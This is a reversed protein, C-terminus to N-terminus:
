AYPWKERNKTWSNISESVQGAGNTTCHRPRLIVGAVWPRRKKPRTVKQIGAENLKFMDFSSLSPFSISTFMLLLEGRGQWYCESFVPLFSTTIFRKFSTKLSLQPSAQHPFITITSARHSSYLGWLFPFIKQWHNEQYHPHSSVLPDYNLM